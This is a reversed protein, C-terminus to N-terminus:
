GTGTCSTTTSFVCRAYPKTSHRGRCSKRNSWRCSTSAFTNPDSNIRRPKFHKAFDAVCRIYARQTHSSYNRLQLEELMKRRLETM